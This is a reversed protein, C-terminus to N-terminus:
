LRGLPDVEDESLARDYLRFEDMYGDFHMEILSTGNTAGRFGSGLRIDKHADNVGDIESLNGVVQGVLDGDVYLSIEQRPKFVFAYHHWNGDM